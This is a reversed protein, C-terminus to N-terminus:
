ADILFTVARDFSDGIDSMEAGRAELVMVHRVRAPDSVAGAQRAPWRGHDPVWHATVDPTNAVRVDILRGPAHHLYVQRAHRARANTHQLTAGDALPDSFPVGIEFGDAGAELAADAQAQSTAVDPYRM